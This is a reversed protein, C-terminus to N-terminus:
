GRLDIAFQLLEECKSCLPLNDPNKHPVFVYGCLARLPTGNVRAELIITHADRGSPDREIIHSHESDDNELEEDTNTDLIIDPKTLVDINTIGVFIEKIRNQM